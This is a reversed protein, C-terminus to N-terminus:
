LAEIRRYGSSELMERSERFLNLVGSRRRLVQTVLDCPFSSVSESAILSFEFWWAQLKELGFSELWGFFLNLVGSCRKRGWFIEM